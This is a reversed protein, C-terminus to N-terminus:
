QASIISKIKLVSITGSYYLSHCFIFVYYAGFGRFNTILLPTFLVRYFSQQLLCLIFYTLDQYHKEQVLGLDRGQFYGHWQVYEM